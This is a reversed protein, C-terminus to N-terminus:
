DCCILKVHSADAVLSPPMGFVEIFAKTLHALDYFGAQAAAQTFSIGQKWYGVGQWLATWRAYDGIPQGIQERFLSRLRSSSLHVQDAIEDINFEDLSTKNMIECAKLVRADLGALETDSTTILRITDLMLQKVDQAPIDGKFAERLRPLVPEFINIDLDAVPAKGLWHRLGLYEPQEMPIYFLAVDSREAMVKNRVRKSGTLSARTVLTCGEVEITYPEGLAIRLTAAIAKMPRTLVLTEALLLLGGQWHYLVAGNPTPHSFLGDSSNLTM